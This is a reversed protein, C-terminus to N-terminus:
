KVTKGHSSRGGDYQTIVERSTPTGLEGDPTGMSDDWSGIYPKSM